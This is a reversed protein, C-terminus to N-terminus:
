SGEMVKKIEGLVDDAKGPAKMWGAAYESRLYLEGGAGRALDVWGVAKGKRLYDIHGEVKPEGSAPTEGKGLVEQGQTRWVKDAWNRAFDDPKGKATVHVTVGNDEVTQQLERQKDGAKVVFGDFDAPKFTHLRKDMLQNQGNELQSVLTQPVLYITGDPAMLYPSGAGLVPNSVKFVTEKGDRRTVTLTRRPEDLGLEKLKEPPQKGLSRTARLPTFKELLRDAADNGKAERPPIPPPMAPAAVAGGDASGPRMAPTISKPLVGADETSPARSVQAGGDPSAPTVPPQPAPKPVPISRIWVEGDRRSVEFTLEPSQIRVGQLDSKGLDLAVVSDPTSTDPERQWTAYAAVLAVAALGGQVAASRAKM